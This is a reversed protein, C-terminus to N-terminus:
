ISRRPAGRLLWKALGALFAVGNQFHFIMRLPFARLAFWAGRQRILFRYFDRNIWAAALPGAVGLPWWGAALAGVALWALAVSARQSWSVNLDNEMHRSELILETWPLGRAYFDTWIMGGITWEKYHKVEISCDLLIRKGARSVRAGLEVDEICPHGFRESDFGGFKEFVDKRMAGCGAWFTTAEKRGSRHVFSHMLNRYQSVFAPHAPENDYSGMVAAVDPNASFVARVREVTDEHVSVDADLFLLLDGKSERAGLNRAFAPGMRGGTDLVKAGLSGALEATGDASGDDVVIIEEPAQRCGHLAKLAAPM